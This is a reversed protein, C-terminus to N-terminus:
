RPNQSTWVSRIMSNLLSPTASTPPHQDDRRPSRVESRVRTGRGECRIRLPGSSDADRASLRSGCGDADIRTEHNTRDATTRTSRREHRNTRGTTTRTSGRRTGITRIRPRGRQDADRTGLELGRLEANMRTEHLYDHEADIRAEHNTRDATTRTEHRYDQDAATRTM